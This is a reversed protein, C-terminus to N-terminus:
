NITWWRSRSCNWLRLAIICVLGDVSLAYPVALEITQSPFDQAHCAFPIGLLRGYGTQLLVRDFM